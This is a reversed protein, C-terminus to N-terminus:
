VAINQKFTAKNCEQAEKVINSALELWREETSVEGNDLESLKGAIEEPNKDAWDFLKDINFEIKLQEYNEIIFDKEEEKIEPVLVNFPISAMLRSIEVESTIKESIIEGEDISSGTKLYEFAESFDKDINEPRMKLDEFELPMVAVFGEKVDESMVPELESHFFDSASQYNMEPDLVYMRTYKLSDPFERSPYKRGFQLNPFSEIREEFTEDKQYKQTFVMFKKKQNNERIKKKAEEVDSEVGKLRLKGRSFLESLTERFEQVKKKDKFISFAFEDGRCWKKSIQLLKTTVEVDIEGTFVEEVPKYEEPNNELREYGIVLKREAEGPNEFDFNDILSDNIDRLKREEEVDSTKKIEEINILLSIIKREPKNAKPFTWNVINHFITSKDRPINEERLREIISEAKIKEDSRIKLKHLNESACSVMDEIEKRRKRKKRRKRIVESLKRYVPVFATISAMLIATWTEFRFQSLLFIAVAILFLGVLEVKDVSSNNLNM